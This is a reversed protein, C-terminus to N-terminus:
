ASSASSFCPAILPPHSARRRIRLHLGKPRLPMSLTGAQCGAALSMAGKDDKSVCCVTALASRHWIIIVVINVGQEEAGGRRGFELLQALPQHALGALRDFLVPHDFLACATDL